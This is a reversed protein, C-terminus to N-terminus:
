IAQYPVVFVQFQAIAPIGINLATNGYQSLFSQWNNWVTYPTLSDDVEFSNPDVIVHFVRDFLRPSLLYKKLATDDMVNSNAKTMKKVRGGAAPDSALPDALLKLAIGSQDKIDSVQRLTAVDVMSQENFSFGTYTSLYADLMYSEFHNRLLSDKEDASLFSYPTAEPLQYYPGPGFTYDRLPIGTLEGKYKPGKNITTSFAPPEVILSYDLSHQLSMDFLYVKPLWVVDPNMEDKKVVVVKVISKRKPQLQTVSAINTIDVASSKMFGVPLAVSLVSAGALRSVDSDPHKGLFRYLMNRAPANIVGSDIASFGSAAGIRSSFDDIRTLLLEIQSDKFFSTFTTTDLFPKAPPPPLLLTFINDKGFLNSSFSDLSSYVKKINDNLNQMMTLCVAENSTSSKQAKSALLGRPCFSKTIDADPSDQSYTLLFPVLGTIATDPGSFSEKVDVYGTLRSPYCSFCKCVLDFFWALVQVDTIGRYKSKGATMTQSCVQQLDRLMNVIAAVSESAFFSEKDLYFYLTGGGLNQKVVDMIAGDPKLYKLLDKPTIRTDHDAWLGTDLQYAMNIMDIKPINDIFHAVYDSCHIVVVNKVDDVWWVKTQTPDIGLSQYDAAQLGAQTSEVRGEGTYPRYLVKKAKNAQDVDIGYQVGLSPNNTLLEALYGATSAVHVGDPSASSDFTAITPSDLNLGSVATSTKDDLGSYSKILSVLSSWFKDFLEGTNGVSALYALMFLYNRVGSNGSALRFVSMIAEKAQVQSFTVGTPTSGGFLTDMVKKVPDIYYGDYRPDLRSTDELKMLSDLSKSASDLDSMYKNFRDVVDSNLGAEDVTDFISDVLYYAGSELVLQNYRIDNDEFILVGMGSVSDQAYALADLQCEPSRAVVNSTGAKSMQLVKQVFSYNVKQNVNYSYLLEQAIFDFLSYMDYQPALSLIDNMQATIPIYSNPVDAPPGGGVGIILGSNPQNLSDLLGAATYASPKISYASPFVLRLPHSYDASKDFDLNIVVGDLMAAQLISLYQLYAKTSTVSSIDVPSLQKLYQIIGSADPTALYFEKNQLLSQKAVNASGITDILKDKIKKVEGSMVGKNKSAQSDAATQTAAQLLQYTSSDSLSNLHRNQISLDLYKGAPTMNLYVAGTNFDSTTPQGQKRNFAPLFDSVALINAAM